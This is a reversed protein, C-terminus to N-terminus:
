RILFWFSSLNSLIIKLFSIIYVSWFCGNWCTRCFLHEYYKQLIWLFVGASSDRYDWILILSWCLHKGTFKALNKLVGKLWFVEQRSGKVNWQLLRMLLFRESTEVMPRRTNKRLKGSLHGCNLKRKVSLNCNMLYRFDWFLHTNNCVSEVLGCVFEM